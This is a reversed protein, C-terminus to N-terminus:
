GYISRINLADEATRPARGTWDYNVVKDASPQFVSTESKLKDRWYSTIQGWRELGPGGQRAMVMELCYVMVRARILSAPLNVEATDSLISNEDLTYTIWFSDSATLLTPMRLTLLGEADELNWYFVRTPMTKLNNQARVFVGTMQQKRQLGYASTLQYDLQTTSPTLSTAVEMGRCSRAIALNIEDPTVNQYLQYTDGAEVNSSFSPLVNLTYTSAVYDTVMRSEGDPAAGDASLVLVHSGNWYDNAFLLLSTDVVTTSSGGTATGERWQFVKAIEERLDRRTLM